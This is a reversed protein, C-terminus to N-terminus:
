SASDSPSVLDLYEYATKLSLAQERPAEWPVSVRKRMRSIGEVPDAAFSMQRTLRYTLFPWFQRFKEPTVREEMSSPHTALYKDPEPRTIVWDSDILSHLLALRRNM